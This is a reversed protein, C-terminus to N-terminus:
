IAGGTFARGGGLGGTPGGLLERVIASGAAADGGRNGIDLLFLGLQTWIRRLREVRWLVEVVHSWRWARRLGPEGPAVPRGGAPGSEAPARADDTDALAHHFEADVDETVITGSQADGDETIVSEFNSSASSRAAM